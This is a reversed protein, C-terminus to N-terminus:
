VAIGSSKRGWEPSWNSLKGRSLGRTGGQKLGENGTSLVAIPEIGLPKPTTFIVAKVIGPPALYPIVKCVL